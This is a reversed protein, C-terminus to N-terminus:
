TRVKELDIVFHSNWSRIAVVKYDPNKDDDVNIYFGDSEQVNNLSELYATMMYMLREGYMESMMKGGAPQVNAEVKREEGWDEYTTGDPETITTRRKVTYEKLDRQRLRM